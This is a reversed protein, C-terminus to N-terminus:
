SRPCIDLIQSFSSRCVPQNDFWQNDFWWHPPHRIGSGAAFELDSLVRPFPPMGFQAMEVEGREADSGCVFNVEGSNGGSVALARVAQGGLDLGVRVFVSMGMESPIVEFGSFAHVHVVRAHEGPGESVLTISEEGDVIVGTQPEIVVGRLFGLGWYEKGSSLGLKLGGACVLKTENPGVRIRNEVRGFHFIDVKV